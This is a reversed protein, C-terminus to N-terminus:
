KDNNHCDAAVKSREAGICVLHAETRVFLQGASIAPTTQTLEGLDNVACIKFHPGNEVITCKGSDEFFYIRNAVAVPSSYVASLKRGTNLADRTKADLCTYIGTDSIVHLYKDLLLPSPVYPMARDCRWAVHTESVDGRGGLRIAM